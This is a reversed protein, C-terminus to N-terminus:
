QKRLLIRKRKEEQLALNSGQELIAAALRHLRASSKKGKVYAQQQNKVLHGDFKKGAEQVQKERENHRKKADEHM